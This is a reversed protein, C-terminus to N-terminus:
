FQGIGAYRPRIISVLDNRYRIPRIRVVAGKAAADNETLVLHGGGGAEIVRYADVLMAVHTIQTVSKGYWALAGAQFKNWEGFGNQYYDFLAQSGMDPLPLQEGASRLLEQVLGSCDFGSVANDGGWRYRVGLLSLAYAQLIIM